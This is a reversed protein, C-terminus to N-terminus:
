NKEDFISIVETFVSNPVSDIAAAPSFAAAAPRTPHWPLSRHCCSTTTVAAAAPAITQWPLLHVATATGQNTMAPSPCRYHCRPKGRYSIPLPPLLSPQQLLLLLRNHNGCCCAVPSPYHRCHRPKGHCSIPLPSPVKAQRPLLHCAAAAAITIM